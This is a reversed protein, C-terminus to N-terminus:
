RPMAPITTTKGAGNPGLLGFFAGDDVDFSIGDVATFNGYRKVLREIRIAPVSM